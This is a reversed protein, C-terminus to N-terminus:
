RRDHVTAGTPGTFEKPLTGITIESPWRRVALYGAPVSGYGSYAGGVLRIM